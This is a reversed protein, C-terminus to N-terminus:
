RTKGDDRDDDDDDDDDSPSDPKAGGQYASPKEVKRRLIEELDSRAAMTIPDSLESLDFSEGKFDFWQDLALNFSVIAGQDPEARAEGSPAAMSFTLKKSFLLDIAVTSGERKFSGKLSLTGLSEDTELHVFDFGDSPLTLAALLETSSAGLRVIKPAPFSSEAVDKGEKSFRVRSVKMSIDSLEVKGLSEGSKGTHRLLFAGDSGQPGMVVRVSRSGGTKTEGSQDVPNGVWTGCGLLLSLLLPWPQVYSRRRM